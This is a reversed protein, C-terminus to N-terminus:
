ACVRQNQRYVELTYGTEGPVWYVALTQGRQLTVGLPNISEPNPSCNTYLARGAVYEFRVSRDEGNGVARCQTASLAAFWIPAPEAAAPRPELAAAIPRCVQAPIRQMLLERAQQRRIRGRETSAAIGNGNVFKKATM